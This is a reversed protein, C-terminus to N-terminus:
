KAGKCAKANRQMMAERASVTDSGDSKISGTGYSVNECNVTKKEDSITDFMAEVYLDSKGDLNVSKRCEAIVAKKIQLDDLSDLNAAKDKSLYYGAVQLLGLRAKVAKKFEEGDMNSVAQARRDKESQAGERSTNVEDRLSDREAEARELKDRIMKIENEVRKREDDLNKLDEELREIYRATSEEVMLEENDIKIKRKAMEPVENIFEELDESDLAIRAEAGARAKDVIALHNYRVNRQRADYDEGDYNGPVEELDVLYGLSLERRNNNKVANVAESDTIVMNTYVFDGDKKIKEGTFGVCLRRYNEATVLRESPHGNTIPILEMSSISQEDWIDEPHRLERRLSGDPNKYKFIGTRTVIANARIYGEDTIVADGKVEGRDFRAVTKM